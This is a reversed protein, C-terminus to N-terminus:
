KGSEIKEMCRRALVAAIERRYEASALDDAAEHYANRAAAEVGDPETGDMALTVCHGFGGLVLRTRGSSWQALAACVIPLDAPTRAVQEFASQVNLPISIKTILLGPLHRLPLIEGLSLHTASAHENLVTLRADLALMVAAFTSRGGSTVLAGAVTGSNRLNLPAELKISQKLAESAHTNELLAELTVCADIELTNGHKRIHTLGLAQLDVVATDRGTFAPSNIWTGGGLPIANPQALLNLAEELTHPRHYQTIM